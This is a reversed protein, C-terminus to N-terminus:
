INRHYPQVRHGIKAEDTLASINLAQEEYQDVPTGCSHITWPILLSQDRNNIPTHCM